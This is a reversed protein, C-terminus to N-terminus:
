SFISLLEILIKATSDMIYINREKTQITDRQTDQMLHNQMVLLRNALKKYILNQAFSEALLRGM